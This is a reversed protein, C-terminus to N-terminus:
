ILLHLDLLSLLTLTPTCPYKQNYVVLRSSVMIRGLTKVFSWWLQLIEYYQLDLQEVLYWLHYDKAVCDKNRLIALDLLNSAKLVLAARQVTLLHLLFYIM